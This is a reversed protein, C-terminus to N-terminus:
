VIKDWELNASVHKFICSKLLHHFGKIRRNSQPHYLSSYVRYQVGLQEAVNNFLQNKLETGNDSLFAVPDELNVIYM